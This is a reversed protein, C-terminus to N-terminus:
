KRALDGAILRIRDMISQTTKGPTNLLLVYRLLEGKACKIYGARTSIGKLTGTKYFEGNEWTMLTHYPEFSELIKVFGSASIRNERSIGSGEVIRMNGIELVDRAFSQVARVGKPLTGPEGYLRAGAAVLIQNAVFNNSFELLKSAVQKLSYRSVYTFIIRDREADVGGLRVSGHTKAGESELFHAFLHGAYLTNEKERDSFVVRGREIRSARIKELAYTLLPTQPEASIYAGNADRTFNVTNFNVSLASNPADYPEPSSTIGPIVLPRDFFSDDLVLDNLTHGEARVRLSVAAAIESVVESILLPDGYGKIKLNSQDDLYFETKFRFDPGLYHFAALVTLLKLTSAPILARDANKTVLVRDKPDILIM